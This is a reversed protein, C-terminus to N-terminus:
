KSFHALIDNVSFGRKQLENFLDADTNIVLNSNIQSEKIIDLAAEEVTKQSKVEIQEQSDVTPEYKAQLRKFLSKEAATKFNGQSKLQYYLRQEKTLERPEQQPIDEQPVRTVGDTHTDKPLEQKDNPVLKNLEKNEQGPLPVKDAVSVMNGVGEIQLDILLDEINGKVDAADDGDAWFIIKGDKQVHVDSSALGSDEIAIAIQAITKRDHPKIFVTYTSSAEAIIELVRSVKRELDAQKVNKLLIIPEKNFGNAYRVINYTNNAAKKIAVNHAKRIQDRNM